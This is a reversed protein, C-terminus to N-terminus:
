APNLTVRYLKGVMAAPTPSIGGNGISVSVNRDLVGPEFAVFFKGDSSTATGGLAADVATTKSTNRQSHGTERSSSEEGCAGGCILAV